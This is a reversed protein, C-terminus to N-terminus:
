TSMKTVKSILLNVFAVPHRFSLEDVSIRNKTAM